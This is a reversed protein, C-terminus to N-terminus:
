PCTMMILEILYNAKVMVISFVNRMEKELTNSVSNLVKCHIKLDM